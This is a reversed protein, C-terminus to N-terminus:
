QEARAVMISLVLNPLITHNNRPGHFLGNSDGTRDKLRVPMSIDGLLDQEVELAKIQSLFVPLHSDMVM